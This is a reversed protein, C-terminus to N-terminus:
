EIIVKYQMPMGLAMAAQEEQRVGRSEKWGEICLIWLAECRRMMDLDFSLWFDHENPLPGVPERYDTLGIGSYVIPSFIHIGQRMYKVTEQAALLVRTKRVLPDVHWFPSALYIM